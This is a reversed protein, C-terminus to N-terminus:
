EGYDENRTVLYNLRGQMKPNNKMKVFSKIRNIVYKLYSRKPPYSYPHFLYETEDRDIEFFQVVADFGQEGKHKVFGYVPYTKFGRERFWKNMGAWGVACCVTGCERKAAFHSLDFKSADVKQLVKILQRFKEKTKKNM